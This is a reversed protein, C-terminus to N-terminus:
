RWQAQRAQDLNNRANAHNPDIRLAAEYDMIASYYDQKRNYANGRGLYYDANNPNIRIAVNYDVIARDYDHKNHYAIGRSYYADANNSNIRIAESYDAIARNYDNQNHYALGRNYYAIAYNPNLRIVQTFNVIASNYDNKNACAIGRNNYADTYNPDLRIAETFERIASDWDSRNFFVVGRDYSATAATTDPTPSPNPTPTPNPQPNPRVESSNLSYYANSSGMSGSTHPRQRNNTLTMTGSTVYTAMITIPEALRINNLFAEAFPSNRRGAGDLAVTGPATSYMVFLDPPTIPVTRIVRTTDGASRSRADSPPVRCADLVMVNVKNRLREFQRTLDNVSYSTAKILEDNDINVDLPFLFIEGSIEMAHGAYWLFGESNRNNGLRTMFASIERVMDLRQLNQKLEVNFGLERLAASIDNTDNVANALRDEVRPYNANGIVLAYKNQAWLIGSLFLFYIFLKIKKM